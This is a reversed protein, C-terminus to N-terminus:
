LPSPRHSHSNKYHCTVPSMHCTVRTVHWTDCTVHWIYYKKKKVMGGRLFFIPGIIRMPRSIWHRGYAPNKHPFDVPWHKGWNECILRTAATDEETFEKIPLKLADSANALTTFARVFKNHTEPDDELCKILKFKEKEPFAKDDWFDDLLKQVQKGQLDGGHYRAVDGLM